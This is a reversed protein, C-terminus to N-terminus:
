FYRENMQQAKKLFLSIVALEEEKLSDLYQYIQGDFEQHFREHAQFAAQGRETLYLQIRKKDNLDKEKRVYGNRELKLVSKSVVARTVHFFRAIESIFIGPQDGIVKIIHIEGRYFVMDNGLDLRNVRGNAVTEFLHMFDSMIAYSTKKMARNYIGNRNKYVAQM